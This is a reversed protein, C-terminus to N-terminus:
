PQANVIAAPPAAITSAPAIRTMRSMPGVSSATIGVSAHGHVLWPTPTSGVADIALEAGAITTTAISPVGISVQTSDAIPGGHSGGGAASPSM